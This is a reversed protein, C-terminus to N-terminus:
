LHVIESMKGDKKLLEKTVYIYLTDGGLIIGHM